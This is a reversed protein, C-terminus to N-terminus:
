RREPPMPPPRLEQADGPRYTYSSEYTPPAGYSPPTPPPSEAFPPAYPAGPGHRGTGFSAGSLVASVVQSLGIFTPILGGLLWPGPEWTPGLPGHDNYGIFSLGLTLAIGIFSLRIGRRLVIRQGAESFDDEDCRGRSGAGNGAGSGAVPGAARQARRWDGGRMRAEPTIGHRIMEMRERHALWRVVIWGLVPMVFIGFVALAAVSGDDM